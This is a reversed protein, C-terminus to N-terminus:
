DTVSAGVRALVQALKEEFTSRFPTHLPAVRESRLKAVFGDDGPEIEYRLETTGMREFRVVLEDGARQLSVLEGLERGALAARVKAVFDDPTLSPVTFSRM